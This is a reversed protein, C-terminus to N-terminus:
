LRIFAAPAAGVAHSRTVGGHRPTAKLRGSWKFGYSINAEGNSELVFASGGAGKATHICTTGSPGM